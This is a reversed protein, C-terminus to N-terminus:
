PKPGSTHLYFRSRAMEPWLTITVPGEGKPALYGYLLYRGLVTVLIQNCIYIHIDSIHIYIYVYILGLYGM